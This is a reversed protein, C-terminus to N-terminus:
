PQPATSTKRREVWARLAPRIHDPFAIEDPLEDAGFFRADVVEDPDPSLPDDNTRRALYYHNLTSEVPREGRDARPDPYTDMWAGLFGTLEIDILGTEEAVERKAADAPHEAPDCFGGPVDWYRSWPERARLVLLAKGDEEVIASGSPKPNNWHDEGCADCRTPPLRALMQGCFSCYM